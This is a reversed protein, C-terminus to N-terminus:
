KPINVERNLKCRPNEPYVSSLIQYKNNEAIPKPIAPIFCCKYAINCYFYRRVKAFSPRRRDLESRYTTRESDWKKLSEHEYNM